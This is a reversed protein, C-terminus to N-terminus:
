APTMRRGLLDARRRAMDLSRTEPSAVDARVDDPSTADAPGLDRCSCVADRLEPSRGLMSRLEAALAEDFPDLLLDAALRARREPAVGVSRLAGDLPRLARAASTTTEYAPFVVPGVEYLQGELIQRHPYELDNTDAPFSWSQKVVRFWVSSGDIDGRAVRAHVSMANPDDRNVDIEYTLGPDTEALRLTGSKTRGLLWNTDHNMMSRIDGTAITQRWAGSVIEETYVDWGDDITTITNSVSGLGAIVPASDGGADRAEVPATALPTARMELGGPGLTRTFWEPADAM